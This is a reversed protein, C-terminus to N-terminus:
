LRGFCTYYRNRWCTEPWEREPLPRAWLRVGHPCCFNRLNLWLGESFPCSFEYFGQPPTPVPPAFHTPRCPTPHPLTHFPPM